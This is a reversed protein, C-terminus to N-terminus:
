NDLMLIADCPLLERFDEVMYDEWKHQPNYPLIKCPNVAQHGNKTLENEITEFYNEAVKIDLGTIQGSIYVRM